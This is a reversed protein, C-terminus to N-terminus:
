ERTVSGVRAVWFRSDPCAEPFWTPWGLPEGLLSHIPRNGPAIRRWGLPKGTELIRYRLDGYGRVKFKNIFITSSNDDTVRPYTVLIIWSKDAYEVKIFHKGWIERFVFCGEESLQQTQGDFTVKIPRPEVCVLYTQNFKILKYIMLVVVVFAAVLLCINRRKRM